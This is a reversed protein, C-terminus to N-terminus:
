LFNHNSPRSVLSLGHVRFHISLCPLFNCKESFFYVTVKWLDSAPKKSKDVATLMVDSHSQSLNPLYGDQKVESKKEM